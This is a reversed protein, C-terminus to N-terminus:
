TLVCMYMCKPAGIVKNCIYKNNRRGILISQIFELQSESGLQGAMKVRAVELINYHETKIQKKFIYKTVQQFYTFNM